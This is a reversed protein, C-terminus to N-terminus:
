CIHKIKMIAIPSDECWVLGVLCICLNCLVWCEYGDSGIAGENYLDGAAFYFLTLFRKLPLTMLSVM